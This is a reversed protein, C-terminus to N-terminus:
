SFKHGFLVGWKGDEGASFDKPGREGAFADGGDEAIGAAGDQGDVVRQALEGDVVDEDPMLLASRVHGIAVRAGGALDAHAHRGGPRARGVEDGADRRGHEIADRNDGDGPLHRRLHEARVGKLLDVDGADRQGDGLVVKQDRASLIDRGRHPQRKLDRAAAPWPRHQDIDGLIRLLRRREVVESGGRRPRRKGVGHARGDRCARRRQQVRSLQDSLGPPGDDQASVADRLRACLGLHKGKGFRQLNGNGRRQQSQAGNGRPMREREAHHAHMAFRPYVVGNLLRIQQKGEAHTEVIPTM